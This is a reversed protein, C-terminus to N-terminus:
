VSVHIYHQNGKDSARDTSVAPSKDGIGSAKDISVELSEIVHILKERSAASDIQLWNRWM